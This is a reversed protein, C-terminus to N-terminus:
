KMILFKGTKVKDDTKIKYFYVGSAVSQNQNNRKDWTFISKNDKKQFAKSTKVLQGKINYISIETDKDAISTKFNVDGGNVPNPYVYTDREYEVVQDSSSVTYEIDYVDLSSRTKIILCNNEENLIMKCYSAYFDFSNLYIFQSNHFSWFDYVETSLNYFYIINNFINVGSYNDTISAILSNEGMFDFEYMGIWSDYLRLYHENDIIFSSSNYNSNYTALIETPEIYSRFEMCNPKNVLFYDSDPEGWIMAIGDFQTIFDFENNEFQYLSTSYDSGNRSEIFLIDNKIFLSRVNTLNLNNIENEEIDPYLNLNLLKVTNNVLDVYLFYNDSSITTLFGYSNDPKNIVYEENNSFFDKIRLQKRVVDDYVYFRSNNTISMTNISFNGYMEVIEFNNEINFVKLIEGSNFYLFPYNLYLPNNVTQYSSKEYYILNPNDIESIDYVYLDGYNAAIYLTQNDVIAQQIHSPGSSTFNDLFIFTEPNLIDSIDIILLSQAFLFYLYDDDSKSSYLYSDTLVDIYTYPEDLTLGDNINYFNFRYGDEEPHYYARVLVDDKIELIGGVSFTDIVTFDNIDYLYVNPFDYAFQLLLNDGWKKIDTIFSDFEFLEERQMPTQSIDIKEICGFDVGYPNDKSYIYYYYNDIIFPANWSYSPKSLFSVRDLDGAENILYEEIKYKCEVIVKDEYRSISGNYEGYDIISRNFSLNNISEIELSYYNMSVMLLLILILILRKMKDEM